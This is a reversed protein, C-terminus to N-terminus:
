TITLRTRTPQWEVCKKLRELGDALERLGELGLAKIDQEQSKEASDDATTIDSDTVAAGDGTVSAADDSHKVKDKATHIKTKNYVKLAKWADLVGFPTAGTLRGQLEDGFEGAKDIQGRHERLQALSPYPHM